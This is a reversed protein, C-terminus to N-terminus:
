KVPAGGSAGAAGRTTTSTRPRQQRRRKGPADEDDPDLTGDARRAGDRGPQPRSATALTRAYRALSDELQAFDAADEGRLAAM